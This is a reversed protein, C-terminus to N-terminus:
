SYYSSSRIFFKTGLFIALIYKESFQGIQKSFFYNNGNSHPWMNQKSSM